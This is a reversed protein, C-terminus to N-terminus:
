LVQDYFAVRKPQERYKYEPLGTRLTLLRDPRFASYQSRLNFVTQMLLSAGVLLVLALAVQAMIFAGRLRVGGCGGRGGGQKLAQNLDVKSVQLAPALGFIIGTLLSLGLAYGLVTLDIKLNTSLRMDGPVLQKLM